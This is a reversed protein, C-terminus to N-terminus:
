GGDGGGGGGGGRRNGHGGRGAGTHPRDGPLMVPAGDKLRDGGATVVVEGPTLGSQISTADGSAPGIKVTRMHAVHGHTKPDVTVVYVFDGPAGHRLASTPVVIVNQLTDVLLRANVFQSGFLAGDVNAFRAKVKVTGTSPDILNDVAILAGQALQITDSRDFVTVPLSAGAGLRKTVRPLDDEPLTFVVDIPSIQTVAVLGTSSGPTVYNGPDVHRLGVRGAVPSTVYCYTLNLKANNVAAEDALVTGEDQKVLAAQTDYQQRAISDQSVLTKYRELDLKADALSAQDKALTGQAQQLAVQYPRPDIVALLEGQRVIQGEHFNVRDLTGAIRSQVVVNAVPTVSGLAEIQIPINGTGVTATGVTVQPRRFGSPKGGGALKTVGWGILLALVIVAVVGAILMPTSLRRPPPVRGFLTEGRASAPRVDQDARPSRSDAQVGADARAPEIVDHGNGGQGNGRPGETSGTFSASEAPAGDGNGPARVRRDRPAGPTADDSRSPM